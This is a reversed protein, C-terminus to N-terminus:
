FDQALLKTLIHINETETDPALELFHASAEKTGVVAVGIKNEPCLNLCSSQLARYKENMQLKKLELKLENKLKHAPNESVGSATMIKKGCAECVLVAARSFPIKSNPNPQM